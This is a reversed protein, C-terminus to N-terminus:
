SSGSGSDSNTVTRRHGTNNLGRESATLKRWRRTGPHVDSAIVGTQLQAAIESDHRVTAHAVAGACLKDAFHLIRRLLNPQDRELEVVLLRVHMLEAVQVHSNDLVAALHQGTSAHWEFQSHRVGLIIQRQEVEGLRRVHHGKRMRAIPRAIKRAQRVVVPDCGFKHQGWFNCCWRRRGRRPSGPCPRRARPAVLDRSHEIIAIAQILRQRGSGCSDRNVGVGGICSDGPCRDSAGAVVDDVLVVGPRPDIAENTPCRVQRKGISVDGRGLGICRWVFIIRKHTRVIIWATHTVVLLAQGEGSAVVARLSHPHTACPQELVESVRRWVLIVVRNGEGDCAALHIAHAM